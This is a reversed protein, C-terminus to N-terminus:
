ATQEQQEAPPRTITFGGITPDDGAAVARAVRHATDVHVGDNTLATMTRVVAVEDEDIDRAYGSGTLRDGDAGHQVTVHVRGTRIWYDLQRYTLGPVAALVEYSRM